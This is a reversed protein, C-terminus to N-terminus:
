LYQAHQASMYAGRLLHTPVLLMCIVQTSLRLGELLCKNYSVAAEQCSKLTGTRYTETTFQVMRSSSNLHVCFPKIQM